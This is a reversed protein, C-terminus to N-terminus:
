DAAFKLLRSQRMDLREEGRCTQGQPAYGGFTAKVRDDVKGSEEAFAEANGGSCPAAGM